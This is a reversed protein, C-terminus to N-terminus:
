LSTIENIREVTLGTVEAIFDVDMKKALLKRVTEEKEELIGKERGEERGEERGKKEAMYKVDELKAEEDLIYKLRSEYALVDEKSKSLQEWASFANALIEDKMALEELEQYIQNYVKEKRADVMGLLLLWRVLIDDFANLENRSWMHLFKNMEIFHVELVEDSDSIRQMTSDEYLHFTNHYYTNKDFVTFHCINITITPLLTHYGMGKSLQSTYLRSWYYLTRKFMNHENSLQVEMNILDGKQTRVVIDLRSQKDDKYEGGVEQSTFEVEKITDRGTRQLIANLFVITIRKNKESGFMQKFAYDVTLDMLKSLPIRSLAKRNIPKVGSYNTTNYRKRERYLLSMQFYITMFTSIVFSSWEGRM